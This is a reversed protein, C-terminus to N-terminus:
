KRRTAAQLAGLTLLAFLILSWIAYEVGLVTVRADMCTAFIGFLWPLNADLGSQVIFRDAFTQDCSFMKAAVSYQYWAAIMGGLGLLAALIAAAGRLGPRDGANAAGLCVVAMVLYILRQFVCWACPQMGFAYQSILAVGVAALCLIGVGNLLQKSTSLFSTRSSM